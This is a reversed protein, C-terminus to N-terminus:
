PELVIKGLTHRQELDRYAERVETLPYTRAIPIELRGQAILGALEELADTTAAAASGDTKAGYEQAATRDIITDIRDPAVGLGVAMEVYGGGFTDIFADVHGDSAKRIREAVGDGYAVPIVGHAALWDHHGDSALGIVTAGAHVALQVALSGVGGAAGSVVVTDGKALNVARVAAYATTGVVFLSGAVDWPVNGPRAVLNGVDAVVFEAHSSRTEVFGLLDDGVAFRTVDPGIEAVIGALDSGEGSPFTAPWISHLLGKRISAEGPNIGAAMVKVLVQGPGPVPRPVDVIKLVDIDGYEDFRVALPM